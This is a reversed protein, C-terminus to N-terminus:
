RSAGAAEPDLMWVVRGGAPRVLSAPADRDGALARAVANRKGAGAVVFLALRAANLAPLTLTLRDRVPSSAPAEVHAVLRRRARLAPAGPFLSAVHGDAGIGLVVADFAPAAGAFATQVLGEYDRAAGAPRREGEMRHANAQPVRAPSLLTQVIMRWNSDQHDPPVCREDVQFVHVRSWDVAVHRGLLRYAPAPTGGGSLALTARGGRAVAEALASAITEAAATALAKGDRLVVREVHADAAM